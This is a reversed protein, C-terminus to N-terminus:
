PTIEQLFGDIQNFIKEKLAKDKCKRELFKMFEEMVSPASFLVDGTEHLSKEIEAITKLINTYAYVAQHDPREIEEFYADYKEKQKLLDQLARQRASVRKKKLEAEEADIRDAREMWGYQKAWNYLTQKSIVYGRRELEKQASEFHRGLQRWIHFALDITEVRYTKRALASVEM